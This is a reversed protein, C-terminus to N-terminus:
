LLPDLLVKLATPHHARDLAEPARSLPFRDTILSRVDIAGTELARLAPPFPGCRSGVVTIEDIVLPALNMRASESVTSKLVLTGRPSTAEVARQFGEVTGTAEVILSALEGRWDDLLVTEIDRKALIALKEAHKGVALVKAGAGHLVQAALLGLKGDGLVVCERGPEIHVQQLIEFAAALPETFVALEDPVGDPVPHLNAGPVRVLEAFAGDAELIGMVSRSPCHRQLGQACIPCQQCSFNIEGVVRQGRLDAPGQEVRGVFEHGLTGQFGMYGRVIELDTNCIGALAVRVLVSEDCAEPEAVDCVTPATGDFRLARM